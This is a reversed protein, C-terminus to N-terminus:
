EGMLPPAIRELEEEAILTLLSLKRGRTTAATM